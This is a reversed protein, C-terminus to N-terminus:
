VHSMVVNDLLGEIAKAATRMLDASKTCGHKNDLSDHWDASNRLRIATARADAHTM